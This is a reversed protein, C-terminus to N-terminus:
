PSNYGPNSYQTGEKWLWPDPETPLVPQVGVGGSNYGPNPVWGGGGGGYGPVGVGGGYGGGGGGGYGPVSYGGGYGGGGTPTQGTIAAYLSDRSMGEPLEMLPIQRTNAASTLGSTRTNAIDTSFGARGLLLQIQRDLASEEAGLKVSTAGYRQSAMNGYIGAEAGTVGTLSAVRATEADRERNMRELDIDRNSQALDAARQSEIDYQLGMSAGSPGYGTATQRATQEALDTYSRTLDEKAQTQLTAYEEDSMLGSKYASDIATRSDQYGQLAKDYDEGPQLEAYRSTITDRQAQAEDLATQYDQLSLQGTQYADEIAKWMNQYDEEAKDVAEQRQRFIEKELEYDNSTYGYTGPMSPYDSPLGYPNNPDYGRPLMEGPDYIIEDNNAM